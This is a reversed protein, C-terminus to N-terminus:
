SVLQHFQFTDHYSTGIDDVRAGRSSSGGGYDFAGARSSSGGGYNFAGARSYMGAGYDMGFSVGPFQQPVAAYTPLYLHSLICNM